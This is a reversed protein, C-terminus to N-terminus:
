ERETEGDRERGGGEKEKGGKRGAEWRGKRCGERVAIM